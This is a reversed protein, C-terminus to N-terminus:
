QATGDSTASAGSVTGRSSSIATSPRTRAKASASRQDGDADPATKRAPRVSCRRQRPVAMRDPLRSPRRWPRSEALAQRDGLDGEREKQDDCGAQEHARDPRKARHLEAEIRVVDDAHRWGPVAALDAADAPQGREVGREDFLHSLKGPTTANPVPGAGSLGAVPVATLADGPAFPSIISTLGTVGPYKGRQPAAEDAASQELLRILGAVGREGDHALRRRPMEPRAGIWDPLRQEHVVARVVTTPTTASM